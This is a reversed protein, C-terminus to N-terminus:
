HEDEEEKVIEFAYMIIAFAVSENNESEAM